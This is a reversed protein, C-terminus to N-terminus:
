AVAVATNRAHQCGKCVTSGEPMCVLCVRLKCEECTRVWNMEHLVEGGGDRIPEDCSGCYGLSYGASTFVLRRKTGFASM